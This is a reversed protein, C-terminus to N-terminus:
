LNQTWLQKKGWFAASVVESLLIKKPPAHRWVERSAASPACKKKRLVSISGDVPGSVFHGQIVSLKRFVGTTEGYVKICWFGRLLPCGAVGYLPGYDTGLQVSGTSSFRSPLCNLWVWWIITCDFGKHRVGSTRVDHNNLCIHALDWVCAWTCTFKCSGILGESVSM